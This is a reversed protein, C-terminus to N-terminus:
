SKIEVGSDAHLSNYHEEVYVRCESGIRPTQSGILLRRPTEVHILLSSVESARVCVMAAASSHSRSGRDEHWPRMNRSVITPHHM